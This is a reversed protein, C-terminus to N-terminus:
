KREYLIVYNDTQTQYNQAEKGYLYKISRYDFIDAVAIRKYERQEFGFIWNYLNQDSQEKFGQSFSNQVHLIYKPKTKKLHLIVDQQYQSNKPGPKQIFGVFAHKSRDIKRTYYYAQPESGYVYFEDNETLKRNAYKSLIEVAEQPNAGYTRNVLERGSSELYLKPNIAIHSFGFVIIVIAQM